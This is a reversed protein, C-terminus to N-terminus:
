KYTTVQFLKTKDSMFRAVYERALVKAEKLNSAWITRTMYIGRNVTTMLYKRATPNYRHNDVNIIQDDTYYM